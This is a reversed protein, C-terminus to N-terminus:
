QKCLHLALAYFWIKLQSFTYFLAFNSCLDNAIWNNQGRSYRAVITDRNNHGVMQEESQTLCDQQDASKTRNCFILPHFFSFHGAHPVLGSPASFSPHVGGRTSFIFWTDTKEYSLFYFIKSSFVQQLNAHVVVNKM